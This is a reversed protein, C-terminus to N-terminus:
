QSLGAIKKLARGFKPYNAKVGDDLDIEIQEAALPYMIESEYEDLEALMKSLKDMEKLAQTRERQSTIRARPAASVPRKAKRGRLSRQPHSAKALRPAPSHGPVIAM